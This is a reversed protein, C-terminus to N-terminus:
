YDPKLDFAHYAFRSVTEASLKNDGMFFLTLQNCNLNKVSDFKTAIEDFMLKRIDSLAPCELLFHEPSVPSLACRTCFFSTERRGSNDGLLRLKTFAIRNKANRLFSFYEPVPSEKQKLQFLYHLKCNLNAIKTNMKSYFTNLLNKYLLKTLKGKPPFNHLRNWAFGIGSTEIVNKINNTWPFNLELSKKTSQLLYNNCKGQGAIRLWNNLCNKIADIFIPKRGLEVLVGTNSTHKSVGLIDKCIKYHTLEICCKENLNQPYCGWFDSAYLLIPKIIKDFLSLTIFVDKRFVSGLGSKLIFFARSARDCLDKLGRKINGNSSVVFGLYKIFNVDEIVTNNIFFCNRILRGANNFCISKTKNVNINLGNCQSYEYLFNIQNQLGQKTESLLLIDDAWIMCSMNFDNIKICDINNQQVLSPEFDSLFLNFLTPSLVCGQRVGRNVSFSPSMKDGIRIHCRDISYMSNIINFVNGTIGLKYIKEMLLNRPVKDFAKEFDVFCSYLKKRQLNCHHSVSNHLLILADSTRNGKLFGLQGSSFIKNTTAWSVIRKNIVSCFLKCFVPILSIGRYNLMSHKSGKKHLPVLISTAWEYPFNNSKLISNFLNATFEKYTAVFVKMIDNTISDLGCSTSCKMSQMANTIEEPLIIDDLIGKEQSMPVKHKYNPSNLLNKFHQTIDASPIPPTNVIMREKMKDLINWFRKHNHPISKMESLCKKRFSYKKRRTLCNYQKKINNFNLRLNPDRPSNQMSKTAARLESRTEECERDFWTKENSKNKQPILEKSGSDQLAGQLIVKLHQLPSIPHTSKPLMSNIHQVKDAFIDTKISESFKEKIVTSWQWRRPLNILKPESKTNNISQFFKLPLSVHVEMSCHDTLTAILPNIQFFNIRDFLNPSCLAYDVVSCGNWRFCTIKGRNDGLVRGNVIRFDLNKCMQLLEKGRKCPVGLDESNRLNYNSQEQCQKIMNGEGHIDDFLVNDYDFFNEKDVFDPCISTRANFDGLVMVDGLDSIKVIDDYLVSLLTSNVSRNKTNAPSLYVTGVFIDNTMGFKEKSFKLWVVNSNNTRLRTVGKSQMIHNKVFVAIGGFAKHGSKCERFSQFPESFGAISLDSNSTAHTEIVGFIDFKNCLTLFESNEFKNGLTKSYFNNINLCGIKLQSLFM